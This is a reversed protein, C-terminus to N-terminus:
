YAASVWIAIPRSTLWPTCSHSQWGQWYLLLPFQRPFFDHSFTKTLSPLRPHLCFFFVLILYLLVWSTPVAPVPTELFCFNVANDVFRDSHASSSWRGNLFLLRNGLVILFKKKVFLLVEYLTLTQINLLTPIKTALLKLFEQLSSLPIFFNFLLSTSSYPQM